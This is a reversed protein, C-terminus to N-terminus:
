NRPPLSDYEWCATIVYRSGKPFPVNDLFDEASKYGRGPEAVITVSRGPKGGQDFTYNPFLVWHETYKDGEVDRYVRGVETKGEYVVLITNNDPDVPIQAECHGAPWLMVALAALGLISPVLWRNTLVRGAKTARFFKAISM